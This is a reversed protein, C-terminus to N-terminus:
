PFRRIKRSGWLGMFGDQRERVICPDPPFITIHSINQQRPLTARTNMSPLCVALLYRSTSASCTCGAISCKQGSSSPYKMSSIYSYMTGSTNLIPKSVILRVELVKEPWRM